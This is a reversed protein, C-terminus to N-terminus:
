AFALGMGMGTAPGQTAQGDWGWFVSLIAVAVGQWNLGPAGQSVWPEGDVCVWCAPRSAVTQDWSHLLSGAVCGCASLSLTLAKSGSSLLRRGPSLGSVEAKRLALPGPLLFATARSVSLVSPALFLAKKCKYLLATRPLSSAYEIFARRGSLVREKM